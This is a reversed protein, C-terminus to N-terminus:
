FSKRGIYQFGKAANGNMTTLSIDQIAITKFHSLLTAIWQKDHHRVVAGDNLEFVGYTGYLEQFQAYRLRNRPDDQLWYDSIYIIGGPKLIRKLEEILAHQAQDMPICTLVAFLLVADFCRDHFPLRANTWTLLHLHPFERQGREIMAPSSDLGIVNKYGLDHLENCIRGYGCGYDLIEGNFPVLIKFREVDLPHTFIRSNAAKDWYEIQNDM